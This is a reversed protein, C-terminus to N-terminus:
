TTSISILSVFFIFPILIPLLLWIFFSFGGLIFTSITCILGIIILISRLFLGVIRMLTNVIITGFFDEPDFGGSYEEKLRKYPAFLTKFLTPVSFFSFVFSVLNFWISVFNKLARSYHWSLYYPIILLIKM